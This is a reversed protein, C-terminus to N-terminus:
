QMGLSKLAADREKPNVHLALKTAIRQADDTRKDAEKKGASGVTVGFFTGVLTGVVGGFATLVSTADSATPWRVASVLLAITMVILGAIVIWFGYHHKDSDDKNTVMISV